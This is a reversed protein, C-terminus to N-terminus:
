RMWDTGGGGRRRNAMPPGPLVPKRTGAEVLADAPYASGQERNEKDFWNCTFLTPRDAGVSTGTVTMLPGGGKLKVVDGIKFSM